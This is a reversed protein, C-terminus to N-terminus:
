LNTSGNNMEGLKNKTLQSLTTTQIWKIIGCLIFYLLTLIPAPESLFVKGDEVRGDEVIARTNLTKASEKDSDRIVRLVRLVRFPIQIM